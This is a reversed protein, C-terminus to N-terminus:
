FTCIKIFPLTKGTCVMFAFLQLLPTAGSMRMRQVPHLHNITPNILLQTQAMITGICGHRFFPEKKGWLRIGTWHHGTEKSFNWTAGLSLSKIYKPDLFFSGLYVHRLAALAAGCRRCLLSNTLWLLHLHRRLTNHGTFALLLVPNHRILPCFDPIHLQGSHHTTLRVGQGSYVQSIVRTGM